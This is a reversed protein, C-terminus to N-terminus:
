PCYRIFEYLKSAMSFIYLNGIFRKYTRVYGSYGMEDYALKFIEAEMISPIYLRLGRENDDFYLLDNVIKYLLKVTNESLADNECIM